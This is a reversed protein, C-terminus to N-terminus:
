NSKIWKEVIEKGGLTKVKVFYNGEVLDLQNIQCSNVGVNSNSYVVEGVNNIIEVKEIIDNTISLNMSNGPNPFITLNVLEINETIDVSSLLECASIVNPFSTSPIAVHSYVANNSINLIDDGTSINDFNYYLFLEPENGTLSHQYDSDIEAQSRVKNWIRLEDIEGVLSNVYAGSFSKYIGILLDESSNNLTTVSGYITTPVEQGDILIKIITGSHVVAVHHCQKAFNQGKPYFFIDDTDMYSTSSTCDGNPNWAFRVKGDNISLHFSSNVGNCWGKSLIAFYSSYDEVTVWCEITFNSSLDLEPSDAVSYFQSTGNYYLSNNQTFGFLTTNLVIAFIIKKMNIKNEVLLPLRM